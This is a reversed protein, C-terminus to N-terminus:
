NKKQKKPMPEENTEQEEDMPESQDQEPTRLPPPAKKAVPMPRLHPAEETPPQLVHLVNPVYVLGRWIWVNPDRPDIRFPRLPPPAKKAVPM